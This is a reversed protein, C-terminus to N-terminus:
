RELAPLWVTSGGRAPGTPTAPDVPTPSREPPPTTAPPDTPATTPTPASLPTSAPNAPDSGAAREDGDWHGDGDRDLGSRVGDSPPVGTFTVEGGPAEALGLLEDLSLPVGDRRDPQFAGARLLWAVPQGDVRGRAVLAVDGAAARAMLLELRARDEAAVSADATVQRGVSPATGTDFALVMAELQRRVADQATPPGPFDFVEAHLFDFLTDTSGDHLFGFGAVQDGAVDFRGVKQYANRFHAAKFDQSIFDGEFNVRGNTGFPMAHCGVCTEVGQDVKVPGQFFDFGAQEQASRSRDPRQLPNPPYQITLAFRAYATMDADSLEEARGNLGVFAANFRKFSELEDRALSGAGFRDGRWHMPGAGALGRLSQTTMPGKMPHFSFRRPTVAVNTNRIGSPLTLPEGTPDGLDWALHDMDGFVHCSACAQDGHASTLAADYLFPRGARVEDPTPDFRLSTTGVVQGLRVNVVSITADLHNLVYLQERAEDLALGGPGFGVPIRGLVTGDADLVGVNRSLFGAVYGRSGDARWVLDTPQGISLSLEAPPGPSASHDIHPNLPRQVVEPPGAGFRVRTLRSEVFHGRLNPEFRVQNRAETGSVWLDGTGPQLALNFLTTGIGPVALTVAPVEAAADIVALDQDPLRFKVYRTWSKGREDV